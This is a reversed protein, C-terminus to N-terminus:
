KDREKYDFPLPLLIAAVQDATIPGFSWPDVGVDLRRMHPSVRGHSHGHLHFAGRGITRWSEIPYHFLIVKLGRNEPMSFSLQMEHYDKVWAWGTTKKLRRSSDHNGKVLFKQGPLSRLIESTRGPEHFSFDGLVYVSDEPRVMTQWHSIMEADMEEVSSFPRNCYQIINEHGFHHDSTFWVRMASETAPVAARM